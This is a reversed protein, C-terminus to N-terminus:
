FWYVQNIQGFRNWCARCMHYLWSRLKTFSYIFKGTNLFDMMEVMTEQTKTEMKKNEMIGAMKFVDESIRIRKTVRVPSVAKPEDEHSDVNSDSLMSLQNNPFTECLIDSFQDASPLDIVSLLELSSPQEDEVMERECIDCLEGKKWFCHTGHGDMHQQLLYRRCVSDNRLYEDEGAENENVFIRSICSSGLRGGRGSEQAYDSISYYGCYHFVHTINGLNMGMSLASTTVVIRACTLVTVKDEDCKDDSTYLVTSNEVESCLQGILCVDSKSKCFIIIRSSSTNLAIEVSSKLERQIDISKSVEYKINSRTTPCRVTVFNSGFLIRYDNESEPPLSASLLVIQVPVCRVSPLLMCKDRFSAWNKICHAEDIVIRRLNQSNYLNMLFNKFNATTAHEITCYVIQVDVMQLFSINTNWVVAHIGTRRCTGIVEELIAVLPVIVVTVKTELSVPLLYVLTKGGATPLVVLTDEHNNFILTCAKAQHETLFYEFGFLQRLKMVLPLVSLESQSKKSLSGQQSSVVLEKPTVMINQYTVNMVPTVKKTHVKKTRQDLFSVPGNGNELLNCWLKSFNQSEVLKDRPINHFQFQDRGYRVSGTLSSHGFQSHILNSPSDSTPIHKEAFAKVVHRYELFGIPIGYEAMQSAFIQRTQSETLRVGRSSFLFDWEINQEMLVTESYFLEAPKVYSLYITLIESLDHPM